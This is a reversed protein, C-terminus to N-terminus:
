HREFVCVLWQSLCTFFVGACFFPSWLSIVEPVESALNLTKCARGLDKPVSARLVWGGHQTSAWCFPGDPSSGLGQNVARGPCWSAWPFSGNQFCIKRDWALRPPVSALGFSWDTLLYLHSNRLYQSYNVVYCHMGMIYTYFDVKHRRGCHIYMGSVGCLFKQWHSEDQQTYTPVPGQTGM